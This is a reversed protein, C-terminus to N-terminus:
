APLLATRALLVVLPKAQAQSPICSHGILFTLGGLLNSVPAM